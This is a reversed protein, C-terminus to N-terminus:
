GDAPPLGGASGILERRPGVKAAIRDVLIVAAGLVLFLVGLLAMNALVAQLGIDSVDLFPYPYFGSFHGHVLSYVSYLAPFFLWWIADRWFLRDREVRFLWDLTALIPICYHLLQDGRLQWGLPHWVSRLMWVYIGGAVGVYIMLATKTSSRKAWRGIMSAPAIEASLLAMVLLINAQITFYSLFNM